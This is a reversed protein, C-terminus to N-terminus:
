HVVDHVVTEPSVARGAVDKPYSDPVLTQSDVLWAYWSPRRYCHSMERVADNRRRLLGSAPQAQLCSYILHRPPGHSQSQVM